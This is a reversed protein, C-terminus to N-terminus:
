VGDLFEVEVQLDMNPNWEEVLSRIMCIATEQAAEHFKRSQKMSEELKVRGEDLQAQSLRVGEAVSGNSIIWGDRWFQKGTGSVTCETLEPRPIKVLVYCRDSDVIFEGSALDVTFIGRGQVEIWSIVKSTEDANKIIYESGSVTLVELRSLERANGISIDVDNSVHNQEEAFGSAVKYMGDYVNQSAIQYAEEMRRKGGTFLAVSVTLLCGVILVAVAGYLTKKKNPPLNKLKEFFGEKMVTSRGM